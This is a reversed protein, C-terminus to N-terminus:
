FFIKKATNRLIHNRDSLSLFDLHSDILAFSDGYNHGGAVQYPCDSGWMLREPGFAKYVREILFSLDKYPSSKQGLAYFASVKVYTNPYDALSCLQEIHEQEINGRNGIRCLHDVVITTKPFRECMGKLAPLYEIDILPCLAVQQDEACHFMREYGSSKLWGRCVDLPYIRFGRVGENILKCMALDPRKSNSDVIGIGSFIGEYEKMVDLMYSNDYGYCSMQVLVIGTIGYPEAHKLIDGLLFTLPRVDAESYNRSLPYNATNETWVHVHADVFNM